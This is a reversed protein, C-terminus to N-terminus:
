IGFAALVLNKIQLVGTVWGMQLVMAKGEHFMCTEVEHFTFHPILPQFDFASKKAVAVASGCGSLHLQIDIPDECVTELLSFKTGFYGSQERGPVVLVGAERVIILESGSILTEM